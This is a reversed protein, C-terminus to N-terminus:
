RNKATKFLEDLYLMDKVVSLSHTPAGLPSLDKTCSLARAQRPTLIEVQEIKDFKAALVIVGKLSLDTNIKLPNVPTVKIHADKNVHTKLFLFDDRTAFAVFIPTANAFTGNQYEFDRKKGSLVNTSVLNVHGTDYVQILCGEDDAPLPLTLLTDDREPPQDTLIYKGQKLLSLHGRAPTQIEQLLSTAIKPKEEIVPTLDPTKIAYGTEGPFSPATARHSIGAEKKRHKLLKLDTKQLPRTANGQRQWVTKKYVVAQHYSPIAIACVVKQGYTAFKFAILGNVDKGLSEVIRQRIFLQYKDEDCRLYSLDGQIGSPLGFDNVGIYLTGGAANLFGTITRLILDLQREADAEGTSEPPFVVSTKFERDHGETGFHVTPTEEEEPEQPLDALCAIIEERVAAAAEPMVPQLLFRSLMLRSLKNILPDTAFSSVLLHDRATKDLRTSILKLVLAPSELAPFREVLTKATVPDPSLETKIDPEGSIFEHVALMYNIRAAYFEEAVHDIAVHALLKLLYLLNLNRPSLRPSTYLGLTWILESMYGATLPMTWEEFGTAAEKKDTPKVDDIYSYLLNYVAEHMDIETEVQKKVIAKIYGTLSINKLELIYRDGIKIDRNATPASYLSYGDESLWTLLSGRKSLLLSATQEGPHLRAAVTADLDGLISFSLREPTSEVVTATMRDGPKLLRALSSLKARTINRVHLVGEGEFHDDIVRVFAYLPNSPHLNKIQIKVKAKVPPREKIVLLKKPLISYEQLVRNWAASLSPIDATPSFNEERSSTIKVPIGALHSVSNEKLPSPLTAPFLHIVGEKLTLRGRGQFAREKTDITPSLSTNSLIKDVLGPLPLHLLDDLTFKTGVNRFLLTHLANDRILEPRAGSLMYLLRFFSARLVVDPFASKLTLLRAAILRAADEMKALNDPTQWTYPFDRMKVLSLRWGLLTDLAMPVLDQESLIYLRIIERAPLASLRPSWRCIALLTTLRQEKDYLYGSADLKHLLTTLYDLEEKRAILRLAEQWAYADRLRRETEERIDDATEPPYTSLFDSDEILWEQVRIYVSLLLAYSEFTIEESQLEEGWTEVLAFIRKEKLQNWWSLCLARQEDDLQLSPCLQEFSPSPLEETKM